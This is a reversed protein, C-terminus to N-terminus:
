QKKGQTEYEKKAPELFLTEWDWTFVQCIEKEFSREPDLHPNEIRNVTHHYIDHTLKALLRDHWMAGDDPPTISQAKFNWFNVGSLGVWYLLQWINEHLDPPLHDWKKIKAIQDSFRHMAIRLIERQKKTEAKKAAEAKKDAATDASTKISGQATRTITVLKGIHDGCIVIGDAEAESEVVKYTTAWYAPANLKNAYKYAESSYDGSSRVPKLKPNNKLKIKVAQLCKGAFCEADLCTAETQDEEFLVGQRDSRKKCVRCTDQWSFPADALKRHYVQIKAWLDTLTYNGTIFHEIEEQTEKPERAIMQLKGITWQPYKDPEALVQQWKGALDALRSRSVVYHLTKGLKEAIEEATMSKHMQCIQQAEELPSLAKRETNAIYAAVEGDLDDAAFTYENEELHERQMLELAQFRRRGDVVEYLKASSSNKLLIPQLLKGGTAKIAEVLSQLNGDDRNSICLIDALKIQKTM